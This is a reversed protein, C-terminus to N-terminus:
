REINSEPAATSPSDEAAKACVVAWGGAVGPGVPAVRGSALEPVAGEAWGM